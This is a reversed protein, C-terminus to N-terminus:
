QDRQQGVAVAIRDAIQRLQAHGRLHDGVTHARVEPVLVRPIHGWVAGRVRLRDCVAVAFREVAERAIQRLRRPVALDIRDDAPFLLDFPNHLDKGAAGLVVGAQDALGAHALGRDRLTQCQFDDVALHGLVQAVLTDHREIQRAHDRARLVAALKLLPDLVSDVLDLLALVDDEKDVLQVGDDARAGRLAAGVGRIDELGRQRAAVKLDDARRGELFVALINLLVRSQLAAELGHGDALRVLLVRDRDELTQAVAIFRVVLDLDGIFRDLRRDLEAGAIDGVAEQGILRDIQDVLRRRLHAQAGQGIRVLDLIQLRLEFLRLAAPLLAVELRRM